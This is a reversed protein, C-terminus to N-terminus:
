QKVDRQLMVKLKLPIGYNSNRKQKTDTHGRSIRVWKNSPFIQKTQKQSSTKTPATKKTEM